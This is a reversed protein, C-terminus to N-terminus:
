NGAAERFLKCIININSGTKLMVSFDNIIDTLSLIGQINFIFIRLSIGGKNAQVKQGEPSVFSIKNKYKKM